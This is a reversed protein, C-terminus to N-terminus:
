EFKQRLIEVIRQASRGDGFPNVWNRKKIAMELAFEVIRKPDTGVLKNSGVQLTEPRTGLVICIKM